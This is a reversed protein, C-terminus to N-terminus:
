ESLLICCEYTKFFTIFLICQLIVSSIYDNNSVELHMCNIDLILIMAIDLNNHHILCNAHIFFYFHVSFQQSQFDAIQFVLYYMNSFDSAAFSTTFTHFLNV